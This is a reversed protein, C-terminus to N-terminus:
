VAGTRAFTQQVLINTNTFPSNSLTYTGTATTYDTGAILMVGNDWLNFANADYTFPYITQGVITFADVNVPTGNAVGLNNPTWQIIDLTGSCSGSFGITQGSTDYDQANVVLGNLFLLEFGSNLTFGSATYESQNTLTVTNRTFSAYVGTSSNSSKFSVVTITDGAGRGTPFTITSATETYESTQLLLGDQLVWCQGVIYGAGRTVNFVTQGATATITQKSFYFDDPAQFGVVRGYIDVTLTAVSSTKTYAGGFDLYKQLSAVIQGNANNSVAIEGTGVTTTGTQILQGTRLDLDIVNTGDPLGSWLSQDYLLASTPVFSGTGAAYGAFGTAFSFKRSERNSYLLYQTTGFSPNAPYWTYDTANPPLTTDAINALGYYTKNRPDTSMGAGSQSTAYMVALYRDSFQFTTPRWRLLTSALSFQSSGLSNVCRTFLYWDGSPINSLTVAPLATNVGWPSGSAQVQSTGAFFMQSSTPSAYASYYIEMYQTIGQSATTLAVNFSPTVATPNQTTVVPTPISGFATPSAIGTNPSPSFQTINVDDYVAPNFETLILRCVIAGDETFTDVVKSLRFLKAVWGYNANTITVIDGAELQLGTFGISCDVQLDERAAKLFRNALYQARVDNNVLPLSVSQKNVPENPFLLSPDIQSLDFTSANFADQNTKDPFKAEIVNFSSSLDLPTIQIASVINSDNIDMAVTYTPKQVIVGWTGVIENYKLLCDCCAAMDQLNQMITRSTDVTGDFRFRTQTATTGSYTEYTFLENSYATLAHLSATDIQQPPLAAGYRTNILYDYICEGTKYRSNKVQFKTQEMGRLGAEANYTLQVIAFACNSMLKTGDWQYVLGSESMVSIATQTSNVPSNSGNSYLYIKILDKYQNSRTNNSEDLLYDVTHGDSQFVVKRGGFYIDGFTITDPTQTANTSTVEALAMVYFIKKNDGTISLDVITGGVWADGYVVPVKNDTAPPVQQRNGPDPSAGAAGMDPAKFLAKSIVTSVVMNIAFAIVTAMVANAAIWSSGAVAAVIITGVALANSTYAACFILLWLKKMM